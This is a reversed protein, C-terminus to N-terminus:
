PQLVSYQLVKVLQVLSYMRLEDDGNPDDLSEPVFWTAFKMGSLITLACKHIGPINSYVAAGSQVCLVICCRRYRSFVKFDSSM